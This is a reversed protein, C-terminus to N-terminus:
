ARSYMARRPPSGTKSVCAPKGPAILVFRLSTTTWPTGPSTRFTLGPADLAESLGVTEMPVVEWHDYTGADVSVTHPGPTPIPIALRPWGASFPAALGFVPGDDVTARSQREEVLRFVFVGLVLLLIALLLAYWATLRVRISLAPLRPWSM